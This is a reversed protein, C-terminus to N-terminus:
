PERQSTDAIPQQGARARSQQGIALDSGLVLFSRSDSPTGNAVPRAITELYLGSGVALGNIDLGPITWYVSEGFNEFDNFDEPDSSGGSQVNIEGAYGDAAGGIGGGVQLQNGIQTLTIPRGHGCAIGAAFAASLLMTAQLILRM